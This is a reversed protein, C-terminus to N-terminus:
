MCLEYIRAIVFQYVSILCMESYSYNTVCGAVAHYHYFVWVNHVGISMRQAQSRQLVTIIWRLTELIKRSSVKFHANAQLKIHM